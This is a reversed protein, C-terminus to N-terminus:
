TVGSPSVTVATVYGEENRPTMFETLGPSAEVREM